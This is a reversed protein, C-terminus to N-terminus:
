EDDEDGGDDHGRGEDGVVELTRIQELLKESDEIRRRCYELFLSDVILELEELLLLNDHVGSERDESGMVELPLKTKLVSLGGKLTFRIEYDRDAVKLLISARDVSKGIAFSQRADGTISGSFVAKSDGAESKLGIAGDVVVVVNKKEEGEGVAVTENSSSLFWLWSLFDSLLWDPIM